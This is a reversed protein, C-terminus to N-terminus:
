ERVFARSTRRHDGGGVGSVISIMTETGPYDTDAQDFGTYQQEYM